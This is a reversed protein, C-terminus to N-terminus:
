KDALVGHGLRDAPGLNAPIPSAFVPIRSPWRMETELKEVAFNRRPEGSLALKSRGDGRRFKANYIRQKPRCEDRSFYIQDRIYVPSSIFPPVFPTAL